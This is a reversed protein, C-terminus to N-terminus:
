VTSFLSKRCSGLTARKFKLSSAIVVLYLSIARFFLAIESTLRPILRGTANTTAQQEEASSFLTLAHSLSAPFVGYVSREKEDKQILAISSLAPKVENASSSPQAMTSSM